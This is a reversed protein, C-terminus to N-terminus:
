IGYPRVLGSCTLKFKSTKLDHYSEAMMKANQSLVLIDLKDLVLAAYIMHIHM